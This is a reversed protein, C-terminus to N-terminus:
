NLRKEWYILESDRRVENMGCKELVKISAYNNLLCDAIITKVNRQKGAWEMLSSAVELGYGKGQEEEILGFGIEIMGNEDPKGKFGADGIVTMDEKKVVMWIDFGSAENHKQMIDKLFHLIDYTDKRPWKGNMNIGSNKLEETDGNLVSCMLSYTIPIIILRDTVINQVM